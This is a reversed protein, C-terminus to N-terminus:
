KHRNSFVIRRRRSLPELGDLSEFVDRRGLRVFRQGLRQVARAAAVVAALQRRPPAAAAVLARVADDIELAVLAVDRRLDRRDLVVRVSRRPDRQQGVGVSFLAVDQLRGAELHALRDDGALVDVDQRAIRQRQLVDREARLDV